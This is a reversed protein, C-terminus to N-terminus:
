EGQAGLRLIEANTWSKRECRKTMRLGDSRYLPSLLTAPMRNTVLGSYNGVRVLPVTAGAESRHLSQPIQGGGSGRHSSWISPKAKMGWSDYGWEPFQAPKNLPHSWPWPGPRWPWPPCVAVLPGSLVSLCAQHEYGASGDTKSGVALSKLSHSPM